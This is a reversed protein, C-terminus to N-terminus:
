RPREAAAKEQLDIFFRNVDGVSLEDAKWRDAILKKAPTRHQDPKLLADMGEGLLDVVTDGDDADRLAKEVREIEQQVSRTVRRLTFPKDYLDVRIPDPQNGNAAGLKIVDAM